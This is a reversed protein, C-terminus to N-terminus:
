GIMQKVLNDVVHKAFYRVVAYTLFILAFVLFAIYAPNQMYAAMRTIYTDGYIIYGLYTEVVFGGILALLYIAVMEVYALVKFVRIATKDNM